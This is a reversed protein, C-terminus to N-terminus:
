HEKWPLMGSELSMWGPCFVSAATDAMTVAQGKRQKSAEEVAPGLTM